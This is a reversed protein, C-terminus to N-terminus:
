SVCPYKAVMSMFLVAHASQGGSTDKTKTYSVFSYILDGISVTDPFCISFERPKATSYSFEDNTAYGDFFGTVYFQCTLSRVLEDSSSAGKQQVSVWAACTDVLAFPDDEAAKASSALSVFALMPVLLALMKALRLIPRQMSSRVCVFDMISIEGTQFVTTYKSM